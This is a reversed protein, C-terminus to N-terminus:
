VTRSHIAGGPRQHRKIIELVETESVMPDRRALPANLAALIRKEIVQQAGEVRGIRSRLLTNEKELTEIRQRYNTETM